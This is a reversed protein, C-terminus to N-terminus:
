QTQHNSNGDTMAEDLAQRDYRLVRPGLSTSPKVALTKLTNVSVSLYAAAEGQTLWRRTPLPPETM